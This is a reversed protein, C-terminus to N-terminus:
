GREKVNDGLTQYNFDNPNAVSGIILMGETVLLCKSTHYSYYIITYHLHYPWM